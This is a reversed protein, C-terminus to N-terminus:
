VGCLCFGFWVLFGLFSCVCFLCFWCCFFKFGVLFVWVLWGIVARVGEVCGLGGSCIKFTPQVTTLYCSRLM